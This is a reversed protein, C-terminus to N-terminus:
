ILIKPLLALRRAKSLSAHSFAAQVFRTILPHVQPASREPHFQTGVLFPHTPNEIAAIMGDHRYATAYFGKKACEEVVFPRLSFRNKFAQNELPSCVQGVHSWTKVSLPAMCLDVSGEPMQSTMFAGSLTNMRRFSASDHFVQNVMVHLGFCVGLIPVRNMWAAQFALARHMYAQELCTHRWGALFVGDVRSVDRIIDGIGVINARGGCMRAASKLMRTPQEGRGVVAIRVVSNGPNDYCLRTRTLLPAHALKGVCRLDGDRVSHVAMLPLCATTLVILSKKMFIKEGQKVLKSSM